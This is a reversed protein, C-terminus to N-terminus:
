NCAPPRELFTSQLKAGESNSRLPWALQLRPGGWRWFGFGLTKVNLSPSSSFYFCTLSRDGRVGGRVGGFRGGESMISPPPPLYCNYFTQRITRFCDGLLKCINTILGCRLDMNVQLFLEFYIIFDLYIWTVMRCRLDKNVKFNSPTCKLDMQPVNSIYKLDNLHLFPESKKSIVQSQFAFGSEKGWNWTLMWKCTTKKYVSCLLSIISRGHM